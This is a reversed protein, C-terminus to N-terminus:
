KKYEKLNKVAYEKLAQNLYKYETHMKFIIQLELKSPIIYKSGDELLTLIILDRKLYDHTIIINKRLHCETTGNETQIIGEEPKALNAMYIFDMQNM